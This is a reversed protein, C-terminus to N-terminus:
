FVTSTHSSALISCPLSHISNLGLPELWFGPKMPPIGHNKMVKCFSPQDLFFHGWVRGVIMTCRTKSLYSPDVEVLDLSPILVFLLLFRFLGAIARM